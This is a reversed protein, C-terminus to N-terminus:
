HGGSSQAVVPPSAAGYDHGIARIPYHITRFLARRGEAWSGLPIDSRFLEDRVTCSRPTYSGQLSRDSTGM